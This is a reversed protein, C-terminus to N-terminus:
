LGLEKYLEKASIGQKGSALYEAYAEDAKKADALDELFEIIAEQMISEATTNKEKAFSFLLSQMEQPLNLTVNM